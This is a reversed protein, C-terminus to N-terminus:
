RLDLVRRGITYGSLIPEEPDHRCSQEEFYSTALTLWGMFFGSGGCITCGGDGGRTTGVEAVLEFKYPDSAISLGFANPRRHLDWGSEFGGPPRVLTGGSLM